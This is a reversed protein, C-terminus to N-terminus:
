GIIDKITLNKKSLIENPFPRGTNVQEKWLQVINGDIPSLRGDIIHSFKSSWFYLQWQRIFDELACHADFRIDVTGMCVSGDEYINFFPADYLRTDAKPRGKDKIAYVAIGNKSAKWVMAPVIAKGSDIGLEKKFFLDVAQTKTYWIAHGTSAPNLYLVNEPMIGKPQLFTTKLQTSSQLVEALQSCEEQSLPHANIPKGQGDMDYSEIYIGKDEKHNTYLVLAKVPTFIENILETVNRM